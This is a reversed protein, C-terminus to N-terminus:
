QTVCTPAAIVLQGWLSTAVSGTGANNIAIATESASGSAILYCANSLASQSASGSKACGTALSSKLIADCTPLADCQQVLPFAATSQCFCNHVSTYGLNNFAMCGAVDTYPATVSTYDFSAYTGCIGLYALANGNDPTFVPMYGDDLSGDNVNPPPMYMSPGPGGDEPITTPLDCPGDDSSAESEGAESALGSADESGSESAGTSGGESAGTSLTADPGGASADAGSSADPGAQGVVGLALACACFFL